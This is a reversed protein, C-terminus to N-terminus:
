AETPEVVEPESEDDTTTSRKKQVTVGLAIALVAVGGAIIAKKNEKVKGLLKKLRSPEEEDESIVIVTKKEGAEGTGDEVVTVKDKTASQAPVTKEEPTVLGAEAADEVLKEAATKKANATM